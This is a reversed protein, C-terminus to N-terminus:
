TSIYKSVNTSFLWVYLVGMVGGLLGYRIGNAAFGTAISDFHETRMVIVTLVYVSSLFVGYVIGLLIIQYDSSIMKMSSVLGAFLVIGILYAPVEMALLLGIYTPHIKYIPVYNLVLSSIVTM